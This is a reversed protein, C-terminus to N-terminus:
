AFVRLLLAQRLRCRMLEVFLPRATGQECARLLSSLAGRLTLIQMLPMEAGAAKVIADNITFATMSAIMLLAGSLNPSM